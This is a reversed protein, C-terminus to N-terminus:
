YVLYVTMIVFFRFKNVVLQFARRQGHFFKKKFFFFKDGGPGGQTNVFFNQGIPGATQGAIPFM